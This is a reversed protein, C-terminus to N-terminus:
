KVGAPALKAEIISQVGTLQVTVSRTIKDKLPVAVDHNTIYGTVNWVEGSEFGKPTPLTVVIPEAGGNLPPKMDQEYVLNLELTGPEAPASPISEAGGWEGAKPSPSDFTTMDVVERAGAGSLNMETGPFRVKSLFKSEVFEITAGYGITGKKSM